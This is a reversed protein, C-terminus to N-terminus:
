ILSRLMATNNQIVSNLEVIRALRQEIENQCDDLQEVIGNLATGSGSLTASEIKCMMRTSSLGTVYRKMDLVSRAFRRAEREVSMLADGTMDLYMKRHEELLAVEAGIDISDPYSAEIEQFIEIMEKEVVSAFGLFQGLRIADRIKAFVCAEGDVFTNVWTTMEELMQSYNVSIASIPGGANELRSAILRMNMPVTRIAKFAETMESTERQVEGIARSMDLFRKQVQGVPQGLQRARAEYEAAIADAQFMEYNPYGKERLTARLWAASDAPSVGQAQERRAMEAYLETVMRHLPSSPKIRTSIYGGETPSVLAFVWYFRGCKRRNKVYAGTPRGDKIREWMLHFLGRPMDPHRVIKHPAGILEEWEFGAVRHFVSNGARIVGRTDTRSYFLENLHFSAENASADNVLSPSLDTM